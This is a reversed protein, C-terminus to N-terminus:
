NNNFQDIEKCLSRYLSSHIVIISCSNATFMIKLEYTSGSVIM